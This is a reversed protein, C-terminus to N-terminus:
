TYIPRHLRNILKLAQITIILTRKGDNDFITVLFNRIRLRKQTGDINSALDDRSRLMIHGNIPYQDILSNIGSEDFGSPNTTNFNTNMKNSQHNRLSIKLCKELSKILNIICTRILNLNCDLFHIFHM